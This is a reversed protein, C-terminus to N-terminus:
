CLITNYSTTPIRISHKVDRKWAPHFLLLQRAGEYVIMGRVSDSHVDLLSSSINMNGIKQSPLEEGFSLSSM